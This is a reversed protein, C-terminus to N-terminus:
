LMDVIITEADDALDGCLHIQPQTELSPLIPNVEGNLIAQEVYYLQRMTTLAKEHCFDLSSDLKKKIRPLFSIRSRNRRARKTKPPMSHVGPGGEIILSISQTTSVHAASRFESRAADALSHYSVKRKLLPLSGLQNSASKMTPHSGSVLVRNAEDGLSDGPDFSSSTRSVEPVSSATLGVGVFNPNSSPAIVEGGSENVVPTFYHQHLKWLEASNFPKEAIENLHKTNAHLWEVIRTKRLPDPLTQTHSEPSAVFSGVRIPTGTTSKRVAKTTKTAAAEHLHPQSYAEVLIGDSVIPSGYSLENLNEDHGSYLDLGDFELAAFAKKAVDIVITAELPASRMAVNDGLFNLPDTMKEEESLAEDGNSFGNPSSTKRHHYWMNHLFNLIQSNSWFELASPFGLTVVVPGIDFGALERLSVRSNSVLGAAIHRLGETGIKCHVVSLSTLSANYALAYAISKAASTDVANGSVSLSRLSSSELVAKMLLKIGPSNIRNFGVNLTELSKVQPLLVLAMHQAGRDEIENNDLLLEKLTRSGRFANALHEMGQCTIRNFSLQLSELPLNNRNTKISAALLAVLEDGIECNPLSLVRIRHTNQMLRVVAQCGAAGMGAGGLYLEEVSPPSSFPNASKHEEHRVTSTQSSGRGGRRREEDELVADAIATVGDPGLLNGTLFLKQLRCGKRILDAIATAGEPGILNGALYLTHLNGSAPIARCIAACGEDGVDNFGLDLSQLLPGIGGALISAGGDGLHNYGLKLATLQRNQLLAMKVLRADAPM